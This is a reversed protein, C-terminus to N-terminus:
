PIALEITGGRGIFLGLFNGESGQGAGGGEWLFFLHDQKPDLAKDWQSNPNQKM